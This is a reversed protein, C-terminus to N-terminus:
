GVTGIEVDYEFVDVRDYLDEQYFPSEQLFGEADEIKDAELLALYGRRRGQKDRLVGAASLNRVPQALHENFQDRCKILQDESNARLYGVIMFLM